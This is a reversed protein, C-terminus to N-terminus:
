PKQFKLTYKAEQNGDKFVEKAESTLNGELRTDKKGLLTIRDGKRFYPSQALSPVSESANASLKCQEGECDLSGEFPLYLQIRGIVFTV